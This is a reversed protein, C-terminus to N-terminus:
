SHNKNRDRWWILPNNEIYKAIRNMENMFSDKFNWEM